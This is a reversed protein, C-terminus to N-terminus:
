RREGLYKVKIDYLNVKYFETKIQQKHLDSLCNKIAKIEEQLLEDCVEVEVLFSYKNNKIM